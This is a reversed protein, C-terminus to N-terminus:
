ACDVAEVDHNGSNLPAHEDLVATLEASDNMPKGDLQRCLDSRVKRRRAEGLGGWTGFKENRVLAYRLCGRRIPCRRCGKVAEATEAVNSGHWLDSDIDPDRCVATEWSDAHPASAVTLPVPTGDVHAQDPTFLPDDIDGLDWQEPTWWGFRAASAINHESEGTRHRWEDYLAHIKEANPSYMTKWTAHMFPVDGRKNQYGLARAVAFETHGIAYLAQIRRRLGLIPIRNMTDPCLEPKGALLYREYRRFAQIADDCRCKAHRYASVSGHRAAPCQRRDIPHSM